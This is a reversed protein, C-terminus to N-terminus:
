TASHPSANDAHSYLAHLCLLLNGIEGVTEPNRDDPLVTRM